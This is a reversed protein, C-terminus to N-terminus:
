VLWTLSLSRHTQRQKTTYLGLLPSLELSDGICVLGQFDVSRTRCAVNVLEDLQHFGQASSCKCVESDQTDVCIFLTHCPTLISRVALWAQMRCLELDNAEYALLESAPALRFCPTDCDTGLPFVVYSARGTTQKIKISSNQTIFQGVAPLM